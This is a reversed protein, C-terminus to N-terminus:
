NELVIRSDIPTSRDKKGVSGGIVTHRNGEIRAFGIVSMLLANPCFRHEM